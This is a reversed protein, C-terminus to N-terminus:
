GQLLQRLCDEAAARGSRICDPVGIGQYGNGCLFLGGHEGLRQRIADLRRAHGVTYQALAQPWRYIRTFRPEATIGLIDRLEGRVTATAEADSLELVAADRVGGLFCRLLVRDPPARHPFKQGVFTCARLRRGEKHPVLFGFGAPLNKIADAAYGLAVIMSSSYPIEALREALSGDLARVLRAAEHGPLALVVADAELAEGGDFVLRYGADGTARRALERARRGLRVRNKELRAALAEVMTGLGGRLTTFLAPRPVTGQEATRRRAAQRLGRVLSGSRKEIEVLRPLVAAASLQEPDGGYVASLLPEVVSEVLGRSFHREVFQAVSEDEATARGRYFPETALAWKDRWSLLPTRLVSAPRTPVLFEFGEPLPALKGRHLIWTRRKRDNSGVLQEQLDLRECLERADPKETLFCDAGAEVLCGDVRETRLSGGLRPGAEVLYEEIVAGARRVEALHFAASLGSIGGGLVVIRRPTM